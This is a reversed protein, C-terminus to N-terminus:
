GTSGKGPATSREAEAKWARARFIPAAAIRTASVYVPSHKVRLRRVFELQGRVARPQISRLDIQLGCSRLKEIFLFAGSHDM